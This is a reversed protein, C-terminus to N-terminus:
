PPRSCSSLSHAKKLEGYRLFRSRLLPSANTHCLCCIIPDDKQRKRSGITKNKVMLLLGDPTTELSGQHTMKNKSERLRQMYHRQRLAHNLRGKISRQYRVGAERLSNKRATSSCSFSCYINGRDCHTCIIVQEYCLACLFLRPTLEMAIRQQHFRANIHDCSISLILPSPPTQYRLSRCIV